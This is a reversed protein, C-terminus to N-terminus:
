RDHLGSSVALTNERMDQEAEILIVNQLGFFRIIAGFISYITTTNM